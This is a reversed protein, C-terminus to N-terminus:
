TAYKQLESIKNSLYLVEAKYKDIRTKLKEKNASDKYYKRMNKEHETSSGGRTTPTESKPTEESSCPRAIHESMISEPM